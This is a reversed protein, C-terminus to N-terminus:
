GKSTDQPKAQNDKHESEKVAKPTKRVDNNKAMDSIVCLMMFRELNDM